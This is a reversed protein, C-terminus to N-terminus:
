YSSLFEALKLGPDAEHMLSEGILFADIGCARLRQIDAPTSIGSESVTVISDPILPRLQLTTTIDTKFTKLNRNNVGVISASARLARNLEEETHVEVLAHMGLTKGLDILERMLKTELAAAILLYADAGAARAEYVQYSDIIFDKRLLPISVAQRIRMLYDLRGQFFHEETLVSVASAGCEEYRRAIAVPDFDSRILGKSPSAKKVEAIIVPQATSRLSAAFDRAPPQLSIAEDLEAPSVRNKRRALDKQTQELIKSLIM